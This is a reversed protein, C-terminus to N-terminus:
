VSPETFKLDMLRTEYAQGRVADKTYVPTMLPVVEGRLVDPLLPSTGYVKLEFVGANWDMRVDELFMGDPLKLLNQLMFESSIQIRALRRKM